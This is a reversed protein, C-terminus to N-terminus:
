RWNSLARTRSSTCRPSATTGNGLHSPYTASTMKFWYGMKNQWEDIAAGHAALYNNAASGNWEGMDMYSYFSHTFINSTTSDSYDESGGTGYPATHEGVAPAVNLGSACTSARGGWEVSDERYGFGYTDRAYFGYGGTYMGTGGSIPVIIHTKDFGAWQDIYQRLVADSPASGGVGGLHWEGWNGYTRCDIYAIAPDGNYRNRLATVFQGIKNTFVPDNWVPVKCGSAGSASYYSAGADIVWQPMGFYSSSSNVCVSMVGFAFQKGRAVCAARDNDIVSWNFQNDNTHIDKWMYRAYGVSAKAWAVTSASSFSSYIIWGKGPNLLYANNEKPVVSVDASLANMAVGCAFACLMVWVRRYLMM